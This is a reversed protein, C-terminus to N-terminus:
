VSTGHSPHFVEALPKGDKSRIRLSYQVWPCSETIHAEEVGGSATGSQGLSELWGIVYM